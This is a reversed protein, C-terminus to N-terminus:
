QRPYFKEPTQISKYQSSNVSTDTRSRLQNIVQDTFELDEIYRQRALQFGSIDGELIKEFCVGLSQLANLFLPNSRPLELKIWHIRRDLEALFFPNSQMLMPLNDPEIWRILGTDYEEIPFLNIQKLWLRSNEITQVPSLHFDRLELIEMRETLSPLFEPEMFRLIDPTKRIADWLGSRGRYHQMLFRYKWFAEAETKLTMDSSSSLQALYDFYAPNDKSKADWFWSSLLSQLSTEPLNPSDPEFLLSAIEEFILRETNSDKLFISKLSIGNSDRLTFSGPLSLPYEFTIEKFDPHYTKLYDISWAVTSEIMPTSSEIPRHDPPIVEVKANAQFSLITFSFISIMKRIGFGGILCTNFKVEKCCESYYRWYQDIKDNEM